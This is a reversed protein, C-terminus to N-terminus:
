IVPSENLTISTTRTDISLSIRSPITLNNEVHGFPYNALIPIDIEKLRDFFVDALNFEKPAKKRSTSIDCRAFQGLVLASIQEFIGALKLQTLLRDIRYPGENVDEIFLIKNKFDVQYPTSIISNMVTLNGVVSEGTAEGENISYVKNRHPNDESLLQKSGHPALGLIRLASKITFHDKNQEIFASDINPGHFTVLHSIKNISLHLSTIDSFGLLIKPNNQIEQFNLYPLLRACGYGGRIAFIGSISSDRFAQMLDKARDEDSGALYGHRQFISEGSVPSFGLSRIAQISRRITYPNSPPSSPAVVAIRDGLKLRKPKIKV